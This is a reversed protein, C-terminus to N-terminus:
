FDFCAKLNHTFQNLKNINKKLIDSMQTNKQIVSGFCLIVLTVIIFFLTITFLNGVENFLRESPTSTASM